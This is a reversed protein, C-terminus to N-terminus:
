LPYPGWGRRRRSMERSRALHNLGRCARNGRMSRWTAAGAPNGFFRAPDAM